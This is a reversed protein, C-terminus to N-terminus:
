NRRLLGDYLARIKDMRSAFSYRTEVIRRGAKGFTARLDSGKLLTALAQTLEGVTGPRVLLGNEGQRVLNPIGAVRTAVVPVELAMAELVANPLGERLSSFAFADMAEYLEITDSRHGLLQIRDNRGLETILRELRKRQEGEGVILLNVDFGDKLLQDVSRILLDFAKEASLRGVTGIVFRQPPLGLRKKREETTLKRSYEEIDIANEVLV